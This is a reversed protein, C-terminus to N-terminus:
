GSGSGTWIAKMGRTEELRMSGISASCANRTRGSRGRSSARPAIDIPLYRAPREFAQLLLRVKRLSGAGFEV